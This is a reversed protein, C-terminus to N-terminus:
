LAKSYIRYTKDLSGGIREAVRIMEANSELIWSLESEQKIGDDLGNQISRQHLLADIGKGQWEPLVGMLATRLGSVKNKKFLLKLFGFPFLKGNMDKLIENINPIGISFAVPEGKIEAVHAYKPDLIMKLDKGAAAFEAETLPIFGWNNKWAENYIKRVVQIEEKMKKLNVPRIELDPLRRRVISMARDMRETSVTTQDVIYAYMDMEKELGANQILKDYYDFNYPMMIYPDKDFGDILVGITDMMSPSAPGLVKNMGKDRLWDSAVRFLLDATHQDDICEFFGFHGTQTDHFDNFRHDIIAAIRGVDKGDKQALFMAIEANEYFPNKEQDVLKKQDMRLPPVWHETGEYFPYIFHIFREKEEQNSVFTVGSSNM